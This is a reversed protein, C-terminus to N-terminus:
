VQTKSAVRQLAAQIDLQIRAQTEKTVPPLLLRQKEANLRTMRRQVRARAQTARRQKELPHTPVEPEVLEICDMPCPEICLRCGICEDALVTHMMSAAGVIADVPCVALCKTCGVCNDEQIRVTIM